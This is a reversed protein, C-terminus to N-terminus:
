VACGLPVVSCAVVAEVFGCIRECGVDWHFRWGIGVVTVPFLVTIEAVNRCVVEVRSLGLVGVCVLRRWGWSWTLIKLTVMLHCLYRRSGLGM